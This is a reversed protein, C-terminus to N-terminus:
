LSVVREAWRSGALKRVLAADATVFQADERIAAAVYLADYVTIGMTLAIALAAVILEAHGIARVHLQGIHEICSAAQAGTIADRTSLRARKGLVNGLEAYWLEPVVLTIRGAAAAELLLDAESSGEEPLLWKAAVSADPVIRVSAPQEATATRVCTVPQM